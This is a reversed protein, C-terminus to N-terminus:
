HQPINVQDDVINQLVLTLSKGFTQVILTLTTILENDNQMDSLKIVLTSDVSLVGITRPTSWPKPKYSLPTCIVWQLEPHINQWDDLTFGYKDQFHGPITRRRLKYFRTVRHRASYGAVGKLYSIRLWRDKHSEMKFAFQNIELMQTTPNYLMINARVAGDYSPEIEAKGKNAEGYKKITQLVENQVAELISLAAEESTEFSIRRQHSLERLFNLFLLAAFGASAVVVPNSVQEDALSELYSSNRVMYMTGGSWILANLAAAGAIPSIRLREVLRETISSNPSLERHAVRSRRILSLIWGFIGVIVPLIVIVLFNSFLGILIEEIYHM